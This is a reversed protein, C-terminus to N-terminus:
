ALFRFLLLGTCLLIFIKFITFLRRALFDPLFLNTVSGVDAGLGETYTTLPCKWGSRILILAETLMIGYAIWTLVTVRDALATIFVYAVCAVLTLGIVIHLIKVVLISRFLRSM